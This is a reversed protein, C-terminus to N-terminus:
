FMSNSSLENGIFLFSEIQHNCYLQLNEIVNKLVAKKNLKKPLVEILGNGHFIELPSRRGILHQIQQALENAFNSGHEEETNKYNWIISCSREEIISGDINACYEAM